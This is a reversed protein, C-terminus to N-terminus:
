NKYGYLKYVGSAINGTSMSFQISTIANATDKWASGTITTTYGSTVDNLFNTSTFDKHNTASNCNYLQLMTCGVLNTTTTYKLPTCLYVTTTDGAGTIQTASTFKTYFGEYNTAQYTPGAGIGIQFRHTVSASSSLINEILIIYNDYTASLNNAFSITASGSATATAIFTLSGNGTGAQFTPKVGAGNSTFVQGISGYGAQHLANVLDSSGLPLNNADYVISM